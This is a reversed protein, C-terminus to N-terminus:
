RKSIVNFKGSIVSLQLQVHTSSRRATYKFTLRKGGREREIGGKRFM